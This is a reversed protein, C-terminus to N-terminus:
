SACAGREDQSSMKLRSPFDLNGGCVGGRVFLGPTIFYGGTTVERGKRSNRVVVSHGAMAARSLRKRGFGDRRMSIPSFLAPM